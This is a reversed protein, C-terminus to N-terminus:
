DLNCSKLITLMIQKRRTEVEEQTCPIVICSCCFVGCENYNDHDQQPINEPCTGECKWSAMDVIKHQDKLYEFVADVYVKGKDKISEGKLDYGKSDYYQILGQKMYVFVVAWHNEDVHIPIGLIEISPMANEIPLLHDFKSAEKYKYKGKRDTNCVDNLLKTMFFISLCQHKEDAISSHYFNMIEDNLWKGPLLRKLSELNVQIAGRRAVVALNVKSRSGAISLIGELYQAEEDKVLRRHLLLIEEVVYHSRSGM